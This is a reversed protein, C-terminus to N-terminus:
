MSCRQMWVISVVRGDGKQESLDEINCLSVLCVSEGRVKRAEM